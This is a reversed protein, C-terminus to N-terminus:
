WPNMDEYIFKLSVRVSERFQEFEAELRNLRQDFVEDRLDSLSFARTIPQKLDINNGSM